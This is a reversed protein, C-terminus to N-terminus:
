AKIGRLDAFLAEEVNGLGGKRRLIVFMRYSVYLSLVLMIGMQIEILIAKGVDVKEVYWLTIGFLFALISWDLFLIPTWILLYDRMLVMEVTEFIFLLM